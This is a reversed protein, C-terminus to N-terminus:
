SNKADSNASAEFEKKLEERDERLGARVLTFIPRAERVAFSFGEWFAGALTVLAMCFVFPAYVVPMAYYMLKPYKRVWPRLAM